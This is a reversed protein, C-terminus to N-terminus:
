WICTGNAVPPKPHDLGSAREFRPEWLQTLNARMRAASYKPSASCAGWMALAERALHAARVVDM